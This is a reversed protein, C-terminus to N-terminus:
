EETISDSTGITTWCVLSSERRASIASKDVMAWAWVQHVITVSGPWRAPVKGCAYRKRPLAGTSVIVHFNRLNGREHFAHGWPEVPSGLSDDGVEGILQDPEPM